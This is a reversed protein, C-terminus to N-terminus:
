RERVPEHAQDSTGAANASLFLENFESKPFGYTVRYQVAIPHINALQNMDTSAAVADLSHEDDHSILPMSKVGLLNRIRQCDLVQSSFVPAADV